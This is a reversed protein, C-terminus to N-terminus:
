DRQRQELATRIKILETRMEVFLALLGCFILAIVFGAGAGIVAHAPSGHPLAAGAAAGAVILVLALLGNLFRVAGALLKNM